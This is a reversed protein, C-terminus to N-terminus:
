KVLADSDLIINILIKGFKGAGIYFNKSSQGRCLELKVTQVVIHYMLIYLDTCKCADLEKRLFVIVM